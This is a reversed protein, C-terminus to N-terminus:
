PTSSGATAVRRAPSAQPPLPPESASAPLPPFVPLKNVLHRWAERESAPLASWREAVRLFQSREAPAMTALRTFSEVCTRRQEANLRRFRQLVQEMDGREQSSMEQLARQRNPASGEFFRHWNEQIRDLDTAALQSLKSLEAQVRLPVAPAASVATAGPSATAPPLPPPASTKMQALYRLTGENELLVARDAPSVQDWFALRMRLVPQLDAPAAQLLATRESPARRILQQLHWYLDTARLREDRVWPAMAEYAALRTRLFERQRPPRVELARAREVEPLSLWHRFAAVPSAPLPPPPPLNKEGPLPPQGQAPRPIAVIAFALAVLLFACRLGPLDRLSNLRFPNM